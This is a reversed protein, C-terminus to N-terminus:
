LKTMSRTAILTNNAGLFRVFYLGADLYSVDHGSRPSVNDFRIIRNGVISYIEVAEVEGMNGAFKILNTVPNPYIAIKVSFTTRTELGVPTIKAFWWGTVSSNTDAEDWINVKVSASSFCCIRSSVPTFGGNAISAKTSTSASTRWEM